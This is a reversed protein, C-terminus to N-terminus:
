CPCHAVSIPGRVSYGERQEFLNIDIEYRGLRVHAALTSSAIKRSKCPFDTLSKSKEWLDGVRLTLESPMQTKSFKLKM